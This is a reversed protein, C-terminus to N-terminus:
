TKMGAVAASNRVVAVSSLQKTIFQMAHLFTCNGPLVHVKAYSYAAATPRTIIFLAPLVTRRGPV